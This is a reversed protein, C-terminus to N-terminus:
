RTKQICKEFETDVIISTVKVGRIARAYDKFRQEDGNSNIIIILGLELNRLENEGLEFRQDQYICKDSVNFSFRYPKIEIKPDNAVEFGVFDINLEFLGPYRCGDLTYREPDFVRVWVNYSLTMNVAVRLLGAIWDGRAQSIGVEPEADARRYAYKRNKIVRNALNLIDSRLESTDLFKVLFSDPNLEWKYAESAPKVFYNSM